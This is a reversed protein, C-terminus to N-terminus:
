GVAFLIIHLTLGFANAGIGVVGFRRMTGDSVLFGALSLALGGIFLAAVLQDLWPLTLLTFWCFLAALAAVLGVLPLGVGLTRPGSMARKYVSRISDDIRRASTPTTTAASAPSALASILATVRASFM